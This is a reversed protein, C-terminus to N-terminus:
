HLGFVPDLISTREAEEGLVEFGGEVYLFILEEIASVGERIFSPQEQMYLLVETTFGERGYTGYTLGSSDSYAITSTPSTILQPNFTVLPSDDVNLVTMVLAAPNSSSIRSDGLNVLVDYTNPGTRQASFQADSLQEGRGSSAIVNPNNSLSNYIEDFRNAVLNVFVSYTYPTWDNVADSQMFNILATYLNDGVHYTFEAPVVNGRDDRELIKLTVDAGSVTPRIDITPTKIDAGYVNIPSDTTIPDYDVVVKPDDIVTTPDDILSISVGNCNSTFLNTEEGVNVNIKGDLINNRMINVNLSNFWSAEGVALTQGVSNTIEVFSESIPRVSFMTNGNECSYDVKSGETDTGIEVSPTSGSFTAFQIGSLVTKALNEFVGVVLRTKFVEFIQRGGSPFFGFISLWDIQNRSERAAENFLRSAEADSL